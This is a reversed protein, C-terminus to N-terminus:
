QPKQQQQVPNYTRLYGLYNILNQRLSGDLNMKQAAPGTPNLQSLNLLPRSQGIQTAWQEIQTATPPQQPEQGHNLLTRYFLQALLILNKGDTSSAASPDVNGLNNQNKLLNFQGNTAYHMATHIMGLLYSITRVTNPNYRAALWAWPGSVPNFSPVPTTTAAPTAPPTNATPPAPDANTAQQAIRQLIDRRQKLSFM